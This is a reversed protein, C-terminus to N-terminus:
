ATDPERADHAAIPCLWGALHGYQDVHTWGVSTDVIEGTSMVCGVIDSGTM